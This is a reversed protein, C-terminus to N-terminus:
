RRWRRAGEGPVLGNAGWTWVLGQSPGSASSLGSSGTVTPATLSTDAEIRGARSSGRCAEHREGFPVETVVPLPAMPRHPM